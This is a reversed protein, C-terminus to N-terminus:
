CAAVSDHWTILEPASGGISVGHASRVALRSLDAAPTQPEVQRRRAVVDSLVVDPQRANIETIADGASYAVRVDHGFLTLLERFSDAVDPLDDVVLVNAM